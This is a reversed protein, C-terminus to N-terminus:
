RPANVASMLAGELESMLSAQTEEDGFGEIAEALFARILVLKAEQEPIGRSRLYFLSDEDLAGIATGHGCLVDDAFIELEPKADAEARPSLLLAKFLQHSDSKVSGKRVIVRGQNVVRGRGGVVNKFLQRSRSHPSAHDMVSTIDATGAGLAAVSHLVAESNPAALRINIDLRSLNGGLAAYCARYQSDRGLTAGVSTVHVADAADKQLRLHELRSQSNLLLEMGVNRLSTHADAGTHVEILRLAVGSDVVILIRCHSVASKTLVPNSFDLVLSADRRIRIAAGGRMLALSAAGLPQDPGSALIGLNERVWAPSEAGLHALDVIEISDEASVQKLFGGSFILRNPERAFLPNPAPVSEPETVPQLEPDLLNALDTYKWAEVRRNPIGTVAFATMAARRKENLWDLGAGPLEAAHDAFDEEFAGASGYVRRALATM